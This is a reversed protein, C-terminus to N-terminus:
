KQRRSQYPKTGVNLELPIIGIETQFNHSTAVFLGPESKGALLDFMEKPEVAKEGNIEPQIDAEAGKLDRIVLSIFGRTARATQNQGDLEVAKNLDAVSAGWNGLAAKIIGTTLWSDAQRDAQAQAKALEENLLKRNFVYRVSFPDRYCRSGWYPNDSRGLLYGPSNEDFGGAWEQASNVAGPLPEGNAGGM